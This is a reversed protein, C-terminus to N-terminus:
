LSSEKITSTTTTSSKKVGATALAGAPEAVSRVDEYIDKIAACIEDNSVLVVEDVLESAIEFTKKGVQKVAVGDAFRGVDELITIRNNKLAEYLTPSDKPEVGIIKVKPCHHKIYSAIGAILGGGGVPVFVLEVDQMQELVEKGVTAQGAIVDMDDYPHIFNLDQEAELKKAHQYADDYIDGHLVVEGGLRQVAEVKIKPTSKPMVIVARLNLKQAALAVGQAHNGASSAVVGKQRKSTSLSFMKQYAGRLKFSHVSQEDERKLYIQNSFRESLQVAHSLPTVKAVEYVVSNDALSVIRNM